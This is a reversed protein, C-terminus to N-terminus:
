VFFVLAAKSVLNLFFEPMVFFFLLFCSSLLLVWYPPAEISDLVHKPEDFYMIKAIKLYYYASIVSSLVALMAFMIYNEELVSFVLYFKAFFGAMPPIGALSFLIPLTMLALKPHHKSLGSFDDLNKLWKGKTKLLALLAFFGILSIAYILLHLLLAQIGAETGMSLGMLGYGIQGISSYALL